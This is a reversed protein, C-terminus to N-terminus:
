RPPHGPWGGFDEDPLTEGVDSEIWETAEREAEDDRAAEAYEDALGQPHLHERALADIFRSIRGRGIRRHLDNYVEDSVTITLKRTM